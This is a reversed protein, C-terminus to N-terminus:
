QISRWKLRYSVDRHQAGDDGRVDSGAEERTQGQHGCACRGATLVDKFGAPRSLSFAAYVVHPAGSAFGTNFAEIGHAQAPWRKKVVILPSANQISYSM